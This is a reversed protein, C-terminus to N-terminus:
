PFLAELFLRAFGFGQLILPEGRLAGGGQSGALALFPDLLFPRFGALGLPGLIEFFFRSYLLVRAFDLTKGFLWFNGRGLGLGFFSSFFPAFVLWVWPGLIEVLNKGTSCFGQM